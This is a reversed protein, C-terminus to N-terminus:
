KEFMKRIAARYMNYIKQYDEPHQKLYNETMVGSNIELVMFEDNVTEIIDVSCFRLGSVKVAQKALNLVRVCKDAPIEQARAGQQLNFKWSEPDQLVKMYSLQEENDLLIIRYESKIGYFPSLAATPNTQFVEVLAPAMQNSQTIHFSQRGGTGCNPKIVINQQHRMFYNMLYNLNNRGLTYKAQNNFDYLIVHEAAPIEQSHLLEYTAAKDDAILSAANPNLDFKYGTIYRTQHLKTLRKIWNTSLFQLDVQEDQCIRYLLAFFSMNQQQQSTSRSVSM